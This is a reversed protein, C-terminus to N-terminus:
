TRTMRACAGVITGMDGFDPHTHYVVEAAVTFVVSVSVLVFAVSFFVGLMPVTESTPPIMNALMSLFM